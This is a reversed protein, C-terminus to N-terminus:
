ETLVLFVYECWVQTTFIDAVSVSDSGQALMSPRLRETRATTWYTDISHVTLLLQKIFATEAIHNKNINSNCSNGAGYRHIDCWVLTQDCRSSHMITSDTSEIYTSIVCIDFIIIDLLRLVLSDSQISFQRISGEKQWETIRENPSM